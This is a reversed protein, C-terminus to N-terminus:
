PPLPLACFCRCPRTLAARTPAARPALQAPSRMPSSRCWSRTWLAGGPQLFKAAGLTSRRRARAPKSRQRPRAENPPPFSLEAGAAPPRARSSPGLKTLPLSTLEASAELRCSRLRRTLEGAAPPRAALETGAESRCSRPRRTLEGDVLPSRRAGRASASNM